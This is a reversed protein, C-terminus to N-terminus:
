KLPIEFLFASGKGTKSEVTLTGGMIATRNKLSRLGIGKGELMQQEYDFGDGNDRCFIKLLGSKDSMTIEIEGAHSHKLSNHVVEQVVRYINISKEESTYFEQDATFLIAIGSSAAANHIFEHIAAVLGKRHLASPMLNNAVERMRAVLDDLSQSAKNLQLKEEPDVQEVNDVQFKIVSLVPGLEDHLDAAIRAREKEMASIEALANAQQLELNRRQQRIVSFTFYLLITGLVIGTIIVALYIRAETADM